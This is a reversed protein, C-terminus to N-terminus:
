AADLHQAQRLEQVWPSDLLKRAREEARRQSRGHKLRPGTSIAATAHAVHVVSQAMESVPFLATEYGREWLQRAIAHGGTIEGPAPCFTLNHDIVLDRRYLACYDRPYRGAHEDQRGRRGVVSKLVAAAQGVLQKQWLYFPHELELKWSGAAAAQSNIALERLFPALWGDRKVFVDSHMTLYFRGRAVRAGLDWATFVNHPWNEPTEDPRELLRIWNLSRLWDLSEDRSGNDVVIVECAVGRTHQRISRLCIEMLGQVQWHPVCISVLPASPTAATGDM